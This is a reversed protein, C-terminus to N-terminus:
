MRERIQRGVTEKVWGVLGDALPVFLVFSLLLLMLMFSFDSFGVFFCSFCRADMVKYYVLNTRIYMYNNYM